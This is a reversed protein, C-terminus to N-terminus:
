FNFRVGARVIYDNELATGNLDQVVPVQVAGEFIWRKTVYQIGPTLFLQTGGSDPDKSGNLRNNDQHILNVEIVGYLYDPVGQAANRWLRHQYSGDLRVIDGAEFGNAENNVRYSLQSDFQYKLTQYTLVVGGFYDWSGSGVQVSTPLTGLGDRADDKGTPAEVGAFPAVRFTRGPRDQQYATYRAFLTLDGFGNNSRTIRQGGSITDLDIDRYPLVGFLAWQGTLGYGLATVAAVETRDRDAGSPDDGSQNVVLQERAVFEGKAVPLATNFTIPAGIVQSTWVLTPILLVAPIIGLVFIRRKSPKNRTKKMVM